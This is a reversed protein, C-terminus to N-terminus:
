VQIRALPYRYSRASPPKAYGLRFLMVPTKERAGEFLQSYFPEIVKKLRSAHEPLFAQPGQVDLKTLFLPLGGLPQFALGQATAALWLRQFSRGAEIYGRDSADTTVLLGVAGSRIVQKASYNAFMRSMGFRNALRMRKWPRLWRFVPGAIAPVELSKLGLGDGRSRAEEESYRLVKHFEEHFPQHEFRIRDYTFVLKSLAKLETKHTLFFVQNNEDTIVDNLSHCQASSLQSRKYLRRNTVRKQIYEHLGDTTGDNHFSLSAVLEADQFKRFPRNHFIVEASLNHASAKLAINEIAAGIPIFSFLDRVDSAMALNRRHFVEIQNEQMRFAWPQNNDPSPAQAAAEVLEEFLQKSIQASHTTTLM